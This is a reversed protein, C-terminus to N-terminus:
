FHAQLYPGGETFWSFTEPSQQTGVLARVGVRLGPALEQELASYAYARYTPKSVIMPDVRQVTGQVQVDTSALKVQYGLRLTQGYYSNRLARADLREASLTGYWTGNAFGRGYTGLGGYLDTDLFSLTQFANAASVMMAGGEFVHLWPTLPHSLAMSTVLSGYDFRSDAFRLTQQEIHGLLFGRLMPQHSQHTGQYSLRAGGLSPGRGFHAVNSTLLMQSMARWRWAKPSETALGYTAERASAAYPAAQYRAAFPPAAPRATPVRMRVVQASPKLKVRYTKGVMRWSSFPSGKHGELQLALRVWKKDLQNIVLGAIPGDPMDRLTFDGVFRANRFDIVWAGLDKRYCSLPTIPGKAELVLERTAPDYRLRDLETLALSASAGVAEVGVLLLGIVLVQSTRKM